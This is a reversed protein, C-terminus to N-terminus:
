RLINASIAYVRPRKAKGAFLTRKTQLKKSGAEAGEDRILLGAQELAKLVVTKPHPACVHTEFERPLFCFEKHNLKHKTIFGVYEAKQAAEFTLRHKRTDCLKQKIRQLNEKVTSVPNTVCKQGKRFAFNADFCHQIAKKLQRKDFPLVGAEIALCGAAYVISFLGAIRNDKGSTEKALLLRACMREIRERISKITGESNNSILSTLYKLYVHSATGYYMNSQAVMEEAFKRPTTGDPIADFIGYNGTLPIEILRVEASDDYEKGGESFITRVSRNGSCLYMLRWGVVAAQDTKTTKPMGSALLYITNGIVEASKRASTETHQSDDLILLADCYPPAINEIGNVTTYWPNGFGLTSDPDGGWVSGV